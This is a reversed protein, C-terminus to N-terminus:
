INVEQVSKTKSEQQAKFERIAGKYANNAKAIFLYFVALAKSHM